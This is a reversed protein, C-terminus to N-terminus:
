SKVEKIGANKIVRACMACPEAKIKHGNEAGYLYLIAGKMRDPDANIVANMEAHVSVCKEYQQGHPIGLRERECEGEETCHREGSASGNYGTSILKNDNVIVAGYQRRLCTSRKSIAQAVEFWIDDWTLRM